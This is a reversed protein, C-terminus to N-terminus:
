ANAVVLTAPHVMFIGPVGVMISFSGGVAASVIWASLSFHKAEPSTKSISTDNVPFAGNEKSNTLVVVLVVTAVSVPLLSV